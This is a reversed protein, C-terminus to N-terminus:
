ASFTFLSDATFHFICNYQLCHNHNWVVVPWFPLGTPVAPKAAMIPFFL